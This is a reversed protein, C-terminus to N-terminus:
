RQKTKKAAVKGGGKADVPTAIALVAALLFAPLAEMAYTATAFLFGWGM